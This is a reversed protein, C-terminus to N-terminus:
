ATPASRATAARPPRARQAQAPRPRGGAFSCASSPVGGGTTTGVAEPSASVVRRPRARAAAGGAGRPPGPSPRDRPGLRAAGDRAGRGREVPGRRRALLGAQEARRGLRSLLQEGAAPRPEGLAHRATGRVADARRADR